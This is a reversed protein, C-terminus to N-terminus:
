QLRRCRGLRRRCRRLFAAFKGKIGRLERFSVAVLGVARLLDNDCQTGTGSPEPFIQVQPFIIHYVYFVFMRPETDAYAAAAAGAACVVPGRCARINAM